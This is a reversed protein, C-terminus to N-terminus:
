GGHHRQVSEAVRRVCMFSSGTPKADNRAAVRQRNHVQDPVAERKPQFQLRFARQLGGGRRRRMEEGDGSAECHIHSCHSTAICLGKIRSRVQTCIICRGGDAWGAEFLYQPIQTSKGCGTEGQIIVVHSTEVAYRARYAPIRCDRVHNGKQVQLYAAITELTDAIPGSM